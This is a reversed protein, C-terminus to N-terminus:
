LQGKSSSPLGLQICVVKADTSDWNNECVTGWQNNKCIEVRGETSVTGQLRVSGHICGICMCNFHPVAPSLPQILIDMLPELHTAM